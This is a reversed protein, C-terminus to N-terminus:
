LGLRAAMAEWQRIQRELDNAMDDLRNIERLVQGRIDQYRQSFEDASGAIWASGIVQSTAQDMEALADALNARSQLIKNKAARVSDVDM